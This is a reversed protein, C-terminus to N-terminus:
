LHEVRGLQEVGVKKCLSALGAASECTLGPTGSAQSSWSRRPMAWEEFRKASRMGAIPGKWRRKPHVLM